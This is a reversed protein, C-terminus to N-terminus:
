YGYHIGHKADWERLKAIRLELPPHTSFLATMGRGSLPNVIYLPETAPNVRMPVAQAGRKLVELAEALPRGEGMLEAATADALFERQRSVAFQILMAAMPAVIIAALTGLLGLPNEDDDGFIISFQLFNAIASIAAGIMAAVTTVLVDRNRIHSFEHAMVARVQERPMMRVLGETLAVASRKPSRGTAFANPQDSPILYLRPAPIGARAALEAAMAELEPAEGEALPRARSTKLALRDSFWFFFFNFVVAIAAFLLIGQSGGILAGIGVFLASLGSILIWTRIRTTM